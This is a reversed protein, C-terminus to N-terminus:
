VLDDTELIADLQSDLIQVETLEEDEAELVSAEEIIPNATHDDKLWTLTNFDFIIEGIFPADLLYKRVLNTMMGGIAACNFCISKATCKEPVTAKPDCTSALYDDSDLSHLEFVLGGMRGDVIFIPHEAYLKGLRIRESMSDITIVVLGETIFEEELLESVPEIEIGTQELVNDKLAEVKLMGLQEEKFFQSAVNHNEVRDDDYVTIKECGMKALTLVTWSGIGGAGLVHIRRKMAGPGIIDEQRAYREEESYDPEKPIEEKEAEIAVPTAVKAEVVEEKEKKM